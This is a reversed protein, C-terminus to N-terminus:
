RSLRLSLAEVDADPFARRLVDLALDHRAEIPSVRLATPSLVTFVVIPGEAPDELSVSTSLPADKGGTPALMVSSPDTGPTEYAPYLWHVTGGADVAFVLAAVPVRGINRYTAQYRTSASVVAGAVLPRPGGPEVAWLDVGAGHRITTKTSTQGDPSGAGRAAVWSESTPRRGAVIVLGAALALAAFLAVRRGRRTERALPESGQALAAADIAREVRKAHAAADFAPRRTLGEVIRQLAIKRASCSRCSSLHRRLSQERNPPAGGDLLDILDDDELCRNM